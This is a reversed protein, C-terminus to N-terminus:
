VRPLVIRAITVLRAQAIEDTTMNVGLEVITNGKRIMLM